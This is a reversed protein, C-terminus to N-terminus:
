RGCGELYDESKQRISTLTDTNITWSNTQITVPGFVKELIDKIIGLHRKGSEVQIESLAMNTEFNSAMSVVHQLEKHLDKMSDKISAPPSLFVDKIYRRAEAEAMARIETETHASEPCGLVMNLDDYMKTAHYIQKM